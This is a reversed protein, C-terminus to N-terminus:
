KAANVAAGKLSKSHLYTHMGLVSIGAHRNHIFLILLHAFILQLKYVFIQSGPDQFDSVLNGFIKHVTSM